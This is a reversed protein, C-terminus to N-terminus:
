ARDRAEAYADFSQEFVGTIAKAQATFEGQLSELDAVSLYGGKSEAESKLRGVFSNVVTAAMAGSRDKPSRNAAKKKPAPSKPKAKAAPAEAPTKYIMSPEGRTPPAQGPRMTPPASAPVPSQTAFTDPAADAARTESIPVLDPTAGGGPPEIPVMDPESKAAPKTREREPAAKQETITGGARGKGYGGEGREFIM